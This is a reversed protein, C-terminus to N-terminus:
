KKRKKSVGTFDRWYKVLKPDTNKLGAYLEEARQRKVAGLTAGLTKRQLALAEEDKMLKEVGTRFADAAQSNMGPPGILVNTATAWLKM